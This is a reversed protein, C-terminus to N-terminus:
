MTYIFWMKQIWEKTTLCRPQKCRRTILSLAKRFITSCAGRHYPPGDKPYIGLLLIAPDEPLNIELKRLFSWISRWLAQVM